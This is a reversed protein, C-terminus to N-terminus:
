PKQNEKKARTETEHCRNKQRALMEQNRELWDNVLLDALWLELDFLGANEKAIEVALFKLPKSSGDKKM